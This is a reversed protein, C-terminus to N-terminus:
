SPSRCTTEGHEPRSMPSPRVLQPGSLGITVLWLPRQQLASAPEPSHETCGGGILWLSLFDGATGALVSCSLLSPSPLGWAWRSPYKTCTPCLRVSGPCGPELHCSKETWGRITTKPQSNRAVIGFNWQSLQVTGEATVCPRFGPSCVQQSRDPATYVVCPVQDPWGLPVIRPACVCMIQSEREASALRWCGLGLACHWPPHRVREPVNNLVPSSGPPGVPQLANM